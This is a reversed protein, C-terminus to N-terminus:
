FKLQYRALVMCIAPVYALAFLTSLLVGMAAKQPQVQLQFAFTVTDVMLPVVGFIFLVHYATSDFFQFITIDFFIVLAAVLPWIVFKGGFTVAVYKWDIAALKMRSMGIGILMMGLLVSTTLFQDMLQTAIKPMPLKLYAHILGFFSAWLPPLKLIRYLSTRIDFNGRAMLFYGLTMSYLMLGTNALFLVGIADGPYLLIMVPIGFFGTNGTSAAMAILNSTSDPFLPRAIRYIALGILTCLGFILVPLGLASGSLPLVAIYGYTVIPFLVNITLNAITEAEINAYRGALIGIAIILYLPGLKGWLAWFVEM